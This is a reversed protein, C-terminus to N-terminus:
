KFDLGEATNQVSLNKLATDAIFAASQVNWADSKIDVGGNGVVKQKKEYWKMWKAKVVTKRDLSKLTVGGTATVIRNTTDAIVKPATMTTTLRGNDYLKASFNFLIGVKTIESIQGKSATASMRLVGKEVWNLTVGRQSVELKPGTDEIPKVAPEDPKANNAVTTKASETIKSIPPKTSPTNSQRSGCGAFLLLLAATLVFFLGSKRLFCNKFHM